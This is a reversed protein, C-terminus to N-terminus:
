AAYPCPAQARPKPATVSGDARLIRPYSYSGYRSTGSVLESFSHCQIGTHTYCWSAYTRPHVDDLVLPQYCRSNCSCQRLDVGSDALDAANDRWEDASGGSPCVLEEYGEHTLGHCTSCHYGDFLYM